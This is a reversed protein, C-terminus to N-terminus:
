APAPQRRCDLCGFTPRDVMLDHLLALELRKQVQDVRLLRLEIGHVDGGGDVAEGYLCLPVASSTVLHDAVRPKDREHIGRRRARRLAVRSGDRVDHPAAGGHLVPWGRHEFRHQRLHSQCAGAPTALAATKLSCERRGRRRGRRQGRREAAVRTEDNGCVDAGRM